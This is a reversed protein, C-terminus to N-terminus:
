PTRSSQYYKSLGLAVADAYERYISRHQRGHVLKFGPYDGAQIRAHVEESNMVYPELFIVPCRYLRNALLNRAWIYRSGDLPLARSSDPKYAYPPLGTETAFVPALTNAIALEERHTGQLLRLLMEFREDDHALEGPTYAGNLLLHFHNKKSLRPKLADGGWNEANFHLCLVLDPRIRTNVITARARIEATRYVLRDALARIEGSPRPGLKDRAYAELHSREVTSVPANASRVLHVTAGLSELRTKLHQATRLTLGGEMVPPNSGVQFWREEMKAFEGGIHGPDIAVTLSSLPKGPPAPPLSSAPHWFRPPSRDSPTSALPLVIARHPDRSSTRIRAGNSHLQIYPMGGDIMTYVGNLLAAFEDHTVLGAYAELESWDPADGLDALGDQHRQPLSRVTRRWAETTLLIGVLLLVTAVLLPFLHRTKGAM